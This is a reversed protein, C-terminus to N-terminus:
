IVLTELPMSEDGTSLGYLSDYYRLDSITFLNDAIEEIAGTRELKYFSDPYISVTYPQLRRSINRTLGVQKVAAIINSAGCYPVVVNRTFGDDILQFNRGVNAYNLQEREIQVGSADLDQTFYLQKFFDEITLLRDPDIHGHIELMSETIQKATRLVGIPPEHPPKFVILRGKKL